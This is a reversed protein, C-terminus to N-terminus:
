FGLFANKNIEKKTFPRLKENIHNYNTKINDITLEYTTCDTFLENISINQLTIKSYVIFKRVFELFVRKKIENTLKETFIEDSCLCNITTFNKLNEGSLSVAPEDKFKTIVAATGLGGVILGVIAGASLAISTDRDVKNLIGRQKTHSSINDPLKNAMATDFGGASLATLVGLGGSLFKSRQCSKGGAIDLSPADLEKSMLILKNIEYSFDDFNGTYGLKKFKGYSIEKEKNLLKKM